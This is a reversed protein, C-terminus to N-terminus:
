SKHVSCDFFIFSRHIFDTDTESSRVALNVTAHDTCPFQILWSRRINLITPNAIGLGPPIVPRTALAPTNCVLGTRTVTAQIPTSQEFVCLYNAGYPLTPLQNITLEVQLNFLFLYNIIQDKRDM